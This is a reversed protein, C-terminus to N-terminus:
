MVLKRIQWVRWVECTFVMAEITFHSMNLGSIVQSSSIWKVCDIFSFLSSLKQLSQILFLFVSGVQQPSAAASFGLYFSLPSGPWSTCCLDWKQQKFTKSHRDEEVEQTLFDCVVCALLFLFMHVPFFTFLSVSYATAHTDSQFDIYLAQRSLWNFVLIM